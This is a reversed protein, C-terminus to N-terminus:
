GSNSSTPRAARYSGLVYQQRPSPLRSSQRIFEKFPKFQVPNELAWRLAERHEELERALAAIHQLLTKIEPRDGWFTAVREVEAALDRPQDSM